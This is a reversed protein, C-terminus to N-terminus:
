GNGFNYRLVDKGDIWMQIFSYMFRMGDEWTLDPYYFTVMALLPQSDDYYYMMEVTVDCADLMERTVKQTGETGNAIEGDAVLREKGFEIMEEYTMEGELPYTEVGLAYALNATSLGALTKSVFGTRVPLADASDVRVHLWDGLGGMAYVYTDVNEELVESLEDCYAYLTWTEETTYYLANIARVERVSEEGFALNERRVYGTLGGESTGVNVQVYTADAERVVEVRVGPFYRMLVNANEQPTELLDCMTKIVAVRAPDPVDGLIEAGACSAVLLACLLAALWVGIKKKM